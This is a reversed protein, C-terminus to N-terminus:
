CLFCRSKGTGCTIGEYGSACTCTYSNVRDTCTSRHQCPLSACEDIDLIFFWYHAHVKVRNHEKMEYRSLHLILDIGKNILAVVCFTIRLINTICILNSCIYHLTIYHLACTRSHDTERNTQCFSLLMVKNM